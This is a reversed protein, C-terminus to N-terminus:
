RAEAAETPRVGAKENRAIVEGKCIWVKIGICGYTTHATSEAYDIDARLTHLPIRGEKHTEVRAIEAGNLRGGITIKMGEAGMRMGTSIAKKIAKKYSVRKEIQRAINDGVLQADMEPKKVERINIQIEKQTLHQLEAKLREVEEGRKGIVIGPRSTYIGVIVRKATREVTVSAVGGHELRKRLYNRILMDEYLYDAFRERAFWNSVWSRTIGLRLGIPHVKQGM